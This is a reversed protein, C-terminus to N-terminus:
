KTPVEINDLEKLTGSLAEIIGKYAWKERIQYWKLTAASSKALGIQTELKLKAQERFTRVMQAAINQCYKVSQQPLFDINSRVKGKWAGTRIETFGKPALEQKIMNYAVADM